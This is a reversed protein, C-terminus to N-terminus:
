STGNRVERDVEGVANFRMAQRSAVAEAASGPRQAPLLVQFESGQGSISQVSVDGGHGRAIARVLPLGLGTGRSGSAASTTFRDFIHPLDAAAIGRGSDRVVIRAMRDDTDASVSISIEDDRGTHRVANEILADLALGLREADVLATVPDLSGLGWRREATPRWRRLVEAVLLDLDAPEPALFEPNEAAAVLLLRESLAKLRELEGVVVAIDRQQQGVLERALLEAHGLGITIPTRLQHSADALFQRQLTILREAEAAIQARDRAVNKRHAQWAMAVFMVALLPIQEVPDSALFVVIAVICILWLALWALEAQRPDVHLPPWPPAPEPPSGTARV